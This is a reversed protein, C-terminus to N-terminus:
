LYWRFWDVIRRMGEERTGPKGDGSLGHLEGEFRIM